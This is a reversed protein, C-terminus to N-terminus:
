HRGRASGVKLCRTRPTNHWHARLNFEALADQQSSSALKELVEMDQMRVLVDVDSDWPIIDHMMYSGLLVGYFMMYTVNYRPSFLFLALSLSFIFCTPSNNDM